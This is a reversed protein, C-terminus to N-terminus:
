FKFDVFERPLEIKYLDGREGSIYYYKATTEDMIHRFANRVFSMKEHISNGIPSILEDVSKEILKRDDRGTLAFYIDAIEKRHDPLEALRVGEPHKLFFLYLTKRLPTLHVEKNGFEPLVIKYHRDVVVKSLLPMPTPESISELIKKLAPYLEQGNNNFSSLMKLFLQALVPSNETSKMEEIFTNVIPDAEDFDDLMLIVQSAARFRIEYQATNEHVESKPKDAGIVNRISKETYWDFFRVYTRKRAPTLFTQEIDAEGTEANYSKCRLLCPTAVDTLGFSSLILSNFEHHDVSKLIEKMEQILDKEEISYLLPFQYQMLRPIANLSMLYGDQLFPLCVLKLGFHHFKERIHKQKRHLIKQLWTDESGALLFVIRTDPQFLPKTKHVSVEM